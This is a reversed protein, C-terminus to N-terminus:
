AANTNTGYMKKPLMAFSVTDCIDFLRDLVQRYAEQTLDTEKLEYM